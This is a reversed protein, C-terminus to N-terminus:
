LILSFLKSQKNNFVSSQLTLINPQSHLEVPSQLKTFIAPLWTNTLVLIAGLTIGGDLTICNNKVNMICFWDLYNQTNTISSVPSSHWITPQSHLDVTSQMWTFMSQLCSNTHVLIVGLTVGRDITICYNKENMNHCFWDIYSQTITISSM